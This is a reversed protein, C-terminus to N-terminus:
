DTLPSISLVLEEGKRLITLQIETTQDLLIRHLSSPTISQDNIATLIDGSRVGTSWSDLSRTVYYVFSSDSAHIDKVDTVFYGYWPRAGSRLAAQELIHALHYQAFWASIFRDDRAFGYLDGTDSMAIGEYELASALSISMVDSTAQAPSRRHSDVHLDDIRAYDWEQGVVWMGRGETLDDWQGFSMVRADETDFKIFLLGTQTDRLTKEIRLRKGQYDIGFIDHLRAPLSGSEPLLMVSWGDSSLLAASGVHASAELYQDSIASSFDVVTVVRERTRRILEADLKPEQATDSQVFRNVIYSGASRDSPFLWALTVAGAIAGSIVGTVVMILFWKLQVLRRFGDLSFTHAPLHPPRKKPSM